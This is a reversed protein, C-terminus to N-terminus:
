FSHVATSKFSFFMSNGERIGLEVLSRKTILSKFFVKGAMIKVEYFFWQDLIRIVKGRFSNRISSQFPERSIVIDEPRIAVFGRGNTSERGLEISLNEVLAKTGEFKVQFLNKIGVFDAVFTSRPRQFIDELTGTQEIRGNNLVVGRRGVSLAEAFDHTVMLFTTKSSHHLRKLMRRIDERFGPDLASLPNM